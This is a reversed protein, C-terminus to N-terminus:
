SDNETIEYLEIDIENPWPPVMEWIERYTPERGLEYRLVIRADRLERDRNILKIEGESYVRDPQVPFLWDLIGM